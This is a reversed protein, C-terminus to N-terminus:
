VLKFNLNYNGLFSKARLLNSDTFNFLSGCGVASVDTELFVEKIHNYNGAGGLAIVPIKVLSNVIKILDLDYGKMCGDNDISQILLEGAGFDQIFKCHDELSILEKNQGCNSYLDYTNRNNKRVDIAAIIAQSGFNDAIKSILDYNKYCSSNLVVKDAGCNILKAADNFNKIGGGISLPMFCFKSLGEIVSVLNNLDRSKPDVNLVILEDAYQSNYIKSSSIPDGVDRHCEFKKTKVLRNNILLQIPIIRRKLM